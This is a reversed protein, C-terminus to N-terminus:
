CGLEIPPVQLSAMEAIPLVQLIERFRYTSGAVMAFSIYTSCAVEVSCIPLLQLVIRIVVQNM